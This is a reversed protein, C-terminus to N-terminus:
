HFIYRLEPYLRKTEKIILNYVNKKLYHGNEIYFVNGNQIVSFLNREYADIISKYTTKLAIQDTLYHM